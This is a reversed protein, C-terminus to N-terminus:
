GEPKLRKLQDLTWALSKQVSEDKPGGAAVKQWVEV